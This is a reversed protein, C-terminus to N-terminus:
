ELLFCRTLVIRNTSQNLVSVTQRRLQFGHGKQLARVTLLSSDIVDVVHVDDNETLEPIRPTTTTTTPTVPSIVDETNNGCREERVHTIPILHSISLLTHADLDIEPNLQLNKGNDELGSGIICLSFWKNQISRLPAYPFVAKTTVM